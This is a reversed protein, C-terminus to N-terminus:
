FFMEPHEFYKTTCCGSPFKSFNNSEIQNSHGYTWDGPTYVHTRHAKYFSLSCVSDNDKNTERDQNGMVKIGGSLRHTHTHKHTKIHSDEKFGALM